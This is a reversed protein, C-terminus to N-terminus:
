EFTITTTSNGRKVRIGDRSVSAVVGGSLKDGPRVTVLEGAASRVTASAHGDVGQVSLVVPSLFKPKEKPPEPLSAAPPVLSVPPKAAVPQKPALKEKEQEIAVQLKVEELNARLETMRELKGSQPVTAEIGATAPQAVPLQAVPLPKASSVSSTSQAATAAPAAQKKPSPSKAAPTPAPPRQAEQWGQVVWVGCLVLTLSAAAIGSIWLVRKNLQLM